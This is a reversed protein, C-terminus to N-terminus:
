AAERTAFGSFNGFNGDLLSFQALFASKVPNRRRARSAPRVAAFKRMAM